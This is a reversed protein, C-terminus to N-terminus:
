EKTKIKLIIVVPIIMIAALLLRLTVTDMSFISIGGVVVISIIAYVKAKRPMSRTEHWQKLFPGFTKNTLLWTHLKESSKAFCALALLLLPTTPLVPLFIGLVALGVFVIGLLILLPKYISQM